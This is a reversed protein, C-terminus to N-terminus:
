WLSESKKLYIKTLFDASISIDFASYRKDSATFLFSIIFSMLSEILFGEDFYWLKVTLQEPSSIPM